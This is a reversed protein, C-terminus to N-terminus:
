PRELMAVATAPRLGYNGTANGVYLLVDGNQTVVVNPNGACPAAVSLPSWSRGFNASFKLVTDTRCKDAATRDLMVRGHPPGTVTGNICVGPLPFAKTPCCGDGYWRRGEAFALLLPGAAVIAPIRICKYGSGAEDHVFVQTSNVFQHPLLNSTGLADLKKPLLARHVLPTVPPRSVGNTPVTLPLSLLLLVVGALLAAIISTM